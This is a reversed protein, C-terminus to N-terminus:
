RRPVKVPLSNPVIWITAPTTGLIEGDIVLPQAPTADIEMMSTKSMKLSPHQVYKGKALQPLLTMLQLQNVNGLLCVDLIGDNLIARPAVRLSGAATPANVMAIFTAEQKRTVTNETTTLTFPKFKTLAPLTGGLAKSDGMSAWANFGAGAQVLFARGGGTKTGKIAGVDINITDGETIVKCAEKYDESINLAKALNNSLGTPIIGLASGSDYIGNVVEYVTGDGGVAIVVPAGSQAAATAIQEAQGPKVTTYWAWSEAEEGFADRIDDVIKATRGRGAAPNVIVVPKAEQVVVVPTSDFGQEEDDDVKAAATVEEPAEEAPEAAAVAEDLEPHDTPEANLLPENM